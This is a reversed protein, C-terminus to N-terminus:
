LVEPLSFELLGNPQLMRGAIEMETLPVGGSPRAGEPSAGASSPSTAGLSEIRVALMSYGLAPRFGLRLAEERRVKSKFYYLM